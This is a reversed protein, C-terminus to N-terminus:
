SVTPAQVVQAALTLAVIAQRIFGEVVAAVLGMDTPMRRQNAARIELGAQDGEAVLRGALELVGWLLRLPIIAQAGADMRVGEAKRIGAEVTQVPQTPVAAALQM